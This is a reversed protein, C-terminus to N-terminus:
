VTIKEEITSKNITGTESELRPFLNVTSSVDAPVNVINGSIKFQNRRPAHMLRFFALRPALLRLELEIGFFQQFNCEM